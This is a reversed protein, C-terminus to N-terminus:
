LDWLLSVILQLFIQNSDFTLILESDLSFVILDFLQSSLYM